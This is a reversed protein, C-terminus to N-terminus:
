NPTLESNTNLCFGSTRLAGILVGLVVVLVVLEGVLVGPVGVLVGLAGVLLGLVCIRQKTVLCNQDCILASKPPSKVPRFLASAYWFHCIDHMGIQYNYQGGLFTQM